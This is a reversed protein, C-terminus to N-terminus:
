RRRALPDIVVESEEAEPVEAQDAGTDRARRPVKPSSPPLWRGTQSKKTRGSTSEEPLDGLEVPDAGGAVSQTGSARQGSDDVESTSDAVVPSLSVGESRGLNKVHSYSLIATGMMLLALAAASWKQRTNFTRGRLQLFPFTPLLLPRNTARVTTVSPFMSDSVSRRPDETLLSHLNRNFQANVTRVAQAMEAASKYRDNKNFSVARNVIEAVFDPVHPAVQRLDAARETMVKLLLENQTDAVHIAQGSLMAYMTAGVSFVDARPDLEQWRGRAQEPSMFAPTGMTAGIETKHTQEAGSVKSIGFDLLKVEGEATLFVNEPKIDRHLVGAEHAAQLIELLPAAVAFVEEVSLWRECAEWRQQMSQGELFDMVMYPTGDDLVGDDLVPVAGRHNVRNAARAELSFRGRIEELHSYQQHLIKIAAKRQTHHHVAFYVSAMGGIGLVQEIMWKGGILTGVRAMARDAEDPLSSPTDASSEM